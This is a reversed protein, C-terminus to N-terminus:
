KEGRMWPKLKLDRPQELNVGPCTWHDHGVRGCTACRGACLAEGEGHGARSGGMSAEQLLELVYPRLDSM